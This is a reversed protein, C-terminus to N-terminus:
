DDFRVKAEYLNINLINQTNYLSNGYYEPDLFYVHRGNTKDYCYKMRIYSYMKYRRVGYGNDSDVENCTKIGHQPTDDRYPLMFPITRGYGAHNLEVKLYLDLPVIGNDNDAWLYLYYGESTRGSLWKNEVSLQSSIRYKEITEDRAISNSPLTVFRALESLKVETDVRSGKYIELNELDIDAGYKVYIDMESTYLYKSYLRATDFYVVSYALLHQDAENMSDYYSLRLFSKKLVNKQYKVDKNTFGLCGLLDPQNSNNTYPMFAEYSSDMYKSFCWRDSEKVTWNDGSHERMHLNFNIKSLDAFTYGKAGMTAVVPMYVHKEMEPIPNIAKSMEDNVFYRTLNDEKLLTADSKVQIPVPITVQTKTYTLVPRSAVSEYFESESDDQFLTQGRTATVGFIRSSPTDAYTTVAPFIYECIRAFNPVNPDCTWRLTRYDVYQLGFLQMWMSASVNLRIGISTDSESFYHTEDFVVDWYVVGDEEYEAIEEVQITKYRPIKVTFNRDSHNIRCVNTTIHESVSTYTDIPQCFYVYEATIGLLQGNEFPVDADCFFTVALEDENCLATHAVSFSAYEVTERDIKLDTYKISHRLM